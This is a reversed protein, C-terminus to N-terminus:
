EGGDCLDNRGTGLDDRGAILRAPLALSELSGGHRQRLRATRRDGHGADFGRRPGGLGLEDDALNADDAGRDVGGGLQGFEVGVEDALRDRQLRDVVKGLADGGFVAAVAIHERAGDHRHLFEIRVAGHDLDL